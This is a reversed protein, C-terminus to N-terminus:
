KQASAVPAAHAIKLLAKTVVAAALILTVHFGYEILLLGMFDGETHTRHLNEHPWWSALLWACSLWAVTRLNPSLGALREFMPKGYALLAVGMGFAASSIVGLIVFFPMMAAPPQDGGPADPWIVRSLLFAAVAAVVGIIKASRKDHM